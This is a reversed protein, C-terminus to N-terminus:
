DNVRVVQVNDVEIQCGPNTGCQWPDTGAACSNDPQPTPSGPWGACHYIGARLHSPIPDGYGIDDLKGCPTPPENPCGAESKLTSGEFTASSENADVYDFDGNLDAAIQFEGVDPDHSYVVDFRFRTWTNQQAPATWCIGPDAGPCPSTYPGTTEGNSHRFLWDGDSAFLGLIDSNNLGGPGDADDDYPQTQKMQVVNQWEPPSLMFTSPLRLSVWTIMHDGEQYFVTPGPAEIGDGPDSSHNWNRGLECREDTVDWVNPDDDADGDRVSLRRYGTGVQSSGTATPHPDDTDPSTPIIRQARSDDECTIRGWFGLPSEVSGTDSAILEEDPGDGATLSVADAQFAQASGTAGPDPRLVTIDLANGTASAEYEVEVPQWNSTLTVPEENGDVYTDGPAWERLGIRVELGVTNGEGKVWARGTYTTGDTTSAVTNGDDNFSFPGTASPASIRLNHLGHAAAGSVQTISVGSEWGTTGSEFSPNATLNGAPVEGSQARYIASTTSCASTNAGATATAWFTTTTFDSVTVPLGPSSFAAATGTAAVSSTCTANTYLNVTSGAQATGKIKPNTNNAPAVPDTTSVTPAPPTAVPATATMTVADVFIEEGTTVSGSRIVRFDIEGGSSPAVYTVEIATWGSSTVNTTQGEYDVISSGAAGTWHRIELTVPDGNAGTGAKVYVKATYSYAAQASSVTSPLDDLTYTGTGAGKTLKAVYSGIRADAAAQRTVTSTGTPDWSSTNTEFSPNATLNGAPITVSQATYTPGASSCPSTPGNTATAYYTTPTYDAVTVPIGPSAFAAATGTAVPSGTCSSNTFLNVTSGAQATGKIKPNTNNAPSAPDTTSVTPAPPTAPPATKTMTVADIFIEEGTAVSGSRIVRFDIEGGNSPAVYTVEIATWGSSTINTTQGEYDVISSGAAGTWHRIELTVPDGNAGTGAKVYVKATYSYGSQASSVTSPLDDLTYTGTGAGKTLKAVYSGIRADTAAQRTVTSTGTPDWSSTNTEFSPNATLSGAPVTVSQATYTPGASSCASTGGANSATAYFTTPSYDAVTVPIGPSAFAAATGTAVPSGTCSSNTFVNVTSGAQATGKIKPNANNAPSVPDTATVSPAPPAGPTKTMTVADIFIEEGAAVAGSRIVRFDIEGGSSLAPYSVEIATWGSSTINATQPEYDVISSGAAGTWHRIELTVPDGNAGTGAKVYVKATYTYGAQASSVTSPLDDLTYTGTGSGKTLKAVYSGVRADTAAERTVTSTGTPDWSSTNTEFSPNATLNGAPITM